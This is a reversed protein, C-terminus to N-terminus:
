ALMTARTLTGARDYLAVHRAALHAPTLQAEYCARSRRRMDALATEPLSFMEEVGHAITQPELDPLMVCGAGLSRFARNGGTDHLLLPRAAELAEILSLDFLSFRNVNVVFDVAAMLRDIDDVRGLPRTRAQQPLSAPEPGAVAIMGPLATMDALLNLGAVLADYGRYAQASGLFLGIRQDIPLRWRARLAARETSTVPAPAASSGRTAGTMVLDADRLVAAFRADCRVLEDCAEACPALVRDVRRCIDIEREIWTQVDPYSLVDRWHAEPMGWNWTLYLAMPMPAHLMLWVQQGRRRRDLAAAAVAIDHAVLVDADGAIARALSPESVDMLERFSRAISTSVPGGRRRLATASPRYFTRGTLTRRLRKWARRPISPQGSAIVPRPVAPDPFTVVHGTPTSAALADRLQLLYGASGGTRALPPGVHAVNM